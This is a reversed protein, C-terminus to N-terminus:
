DILLFAYRNMAQRYDSLVEIPYGLRRVTSFVDVAMAEPTPRALRPEKCTDRRGTCEACISCSDMSLLFAKVLGSLFIERELKLLKLYLKRTWAHRDEPRRVTKEFHFVAAARYEAFFQRCEEVPPTNPPCTANQGYEGCGFLCKTRVWHAVVFEKPEAWRFDTLEHRAFIRELKKKDPM